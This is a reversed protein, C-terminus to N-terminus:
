NEYGAEKGAALLYELGLVQIEPHAKQADYMLLRTLWIVTGGLMLLFAMPYIGSGSPGSEIRGHEDVNLETTSIYDAYGYNSCCGHHTSEPALTM